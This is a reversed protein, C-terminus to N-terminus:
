SHWSSNWKESCSCADNRKYGPKNSSKKDRICSHRKNEATQDVTEFEVGTPMYYNMATLVIKSGDTGVLSALAGDSAKASISMAGDYGASGIHTEIVVSNGEIRAESYVASYNAIKEPAVEDKTKSEGGPSKITIEKLFDDM